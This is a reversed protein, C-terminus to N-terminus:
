QKCRISQAIYINCSFIYIAIFDIWVVNKNEKQGIQTHSYRYISIRLYLMTPYQEKSKIEKFPWLEEQIWFMVFISNNRPGNDVNGPFKMSIWSYSEPWLYVYFEKASTFNIAWINLM